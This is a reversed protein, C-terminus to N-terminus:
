FVASERPRAFLNFHTLHESVLKNLGILDQGLNLKISELNAEGRLIIWDRVLWDTKFECRTTELQAIHRQKLHSSM